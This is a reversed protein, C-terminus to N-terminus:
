FAASASQKKEKFFSSPDPDNTEPWAIDYTSAEGFTEGQLFARKMISWSTFPMLWLPLPDVWEFNAEKAKWMIKLKKLANERTFVASQAETLSAWFQYKVKQTSQRIGKCSAPFLIAAALDAENMFHVGSTSRPNCEIAHPKGDADDMIDFAIFGSHGTFQVFKSVWEEIASQNELREFAVAVSDSLIAARYVVTGLVRGEHCVSFTSYLAGKMREQVLISQATALPLADGQQHISFGKGSCTNAPKLVYDMRKSLSEAEDNGLLYTEPVPLGAKRALSNFEFKDHLRRLDTHGLSFFSVKAPLHPKILSCHLVEESVPIVLDVQEKSIVELLYSVYAQQDEAPSPTQFSKSVYRSVRCLHWPFPEAVIVRCGAKSLARAIDLAKPLRGLTLLVTKKM